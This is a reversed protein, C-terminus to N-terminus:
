YVFKISQIYNGISLVYIGISIICLNCISIHLFQWNIYHMFEWNIRHMFKLQYSVYIGLQYSAYIGLQYSLYIAVQYPVYVDISVCMKVCSNWPCIVYLGNSTECFISDNINFAFSKPYGHSDMSIYGYKKHM